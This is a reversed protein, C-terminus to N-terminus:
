QSVGASEFTAMNQYCSLAGQIVGMAMAAGSGEGLHMKFDLLPKLSYYKLLKLHAPEKSCHGSKCFALSSPQIEFAISAAVTAILGDLVIPISSASARLVAACMSVIERGGLRRIREWPDNLYKHHLELAQKIRKAKHQMQNANIGTGRGVLSEPDQQLLAACLATASTTNGIGMEGIAYLSSNSPVAEWGRKFARVFEEHNMAAAEAFNQTPSEIGCDVAQFHIGYTSCIANIAAGGAIFNAFMQANVESPYASVGDKAIGHSGAFVTLHFLKKDLSDSGKCRAMWSVLDELEGLSGIPKTKQDWKASVADDISREKMSISEIEQVMSAPLLLKISEPAEVM